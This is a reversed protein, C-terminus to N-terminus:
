DQKWAGGMCSELTRKAEDGHWEWIKATSIFDTFSVITSTTVFPGPSSLMSTYTNGYLGRGFKFTGTLSENSECCRTGGVHDVVM